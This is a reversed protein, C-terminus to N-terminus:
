SEGTNSLLYLRARYFSLSTANHPKAWCDHSSYYCHSNEEGQKEKEADTGKDCQEMRQTKRIPFFVELPQQRLIYGRGHKCRYTQRHSCDNEVFGFLSLTQTQPLTKDLGVIRMSALYQTQVESM